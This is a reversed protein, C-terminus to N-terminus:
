FVLSIWFRVVVYGIGGEGPSLMRLLDQQPQDDAGVRLSMFLFEESFKFERLGGGQLLM